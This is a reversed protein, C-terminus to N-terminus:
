KILKRIDKGKKISTEAAYMIEEETLGEIGGKQIAAVNGDDRTTITIRATAAHEEDRTPDLLMKDGVKYFTCAVPKFAIPLKTKTKPAYFDVKGDKDLAPFVTNALAASAALASADLLNGHNDLINIDVSVMWVKEGKKICLKKVDIAGSERIGRDIVRALEISEANPPGPEFDPSAIPSFEAGAMLSGEDPRDSYPEAVSLKVGAIVQTDGIRVLASGEAKEIPRSIIEIPRTEDMKRGDIRKGESALKRVFDDQVRM